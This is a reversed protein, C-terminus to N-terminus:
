SKVEQHNTQARRAPKMRKDPEDVSSELSDSYKKFDEILEGRVVPVDVPAEIGVAVRNGSIKCITLKIDGIMLFEDPKRSLVLM